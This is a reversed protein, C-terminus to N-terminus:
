FRHEISGHLALVRLHLLELLRQRPGHGGDQEWEERPLVDFLMEVYVIWIMGLRKSNRREPDSFKGRLLPGLLFLFPLKLFHVPFAFLILSDVVSNRM